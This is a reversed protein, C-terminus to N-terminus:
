QLIKPTTGFGPRISRINEKTIIDGAKVDKVVFLSRAFKINNKVKESIEYSVKGLMKETDRVKEVLETFETLDLSFDVDPGGINKDM